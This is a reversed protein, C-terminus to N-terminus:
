YQLLDSCVCRLLLVHVKPCRTLLNELQLEDLESIIVAFLNVASSTVTTVKNMINIEKEGPM